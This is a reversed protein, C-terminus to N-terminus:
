LSPSAREYGKRCIGNAGRGQCSALRDAASVFLILRGFSYVDGPKSVVTTEGEEQREPPWYACMDTSLDLGDSACSMIEGLGFGIIRPNQNDDIAVHWPDLFGHIIPSTRSHMYDIGRAIRVLKCLDTNVM